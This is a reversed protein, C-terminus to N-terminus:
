LDFDAALLTHDSPREARRADVDIWAGTSREALPPTAWVHDIRWGLGRDLAGRVRMDWYTYQGPEDPHHRRFVDVFGWQRVRELAARAEPHFDVHTALRKPDHVDIDEPAVNLDGVWVLPADPRYHRDLFARLREFWALKYAWQDTGVERGQPVYTNLISVGRLTGRILRAEDPADGDELGYAVDALPERTVIAVGAYTKQGKFAVQWGAATFAEAPFEHDQVKTEQLCLADPQHAELWALVQPLRVRVSNVNFTAIRLTDSSM